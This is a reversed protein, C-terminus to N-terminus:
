FNVGASALIKVTVCLVEFNMGSAGNDTAASSALICFSLDVFYLAPACGTQFSVKTHSASM